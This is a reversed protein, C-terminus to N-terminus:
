FFDGIIECSNSEQIHNDLRQVSATKLWSFYIPKHLLHLGIIPIQGPDHRTMSYGNYNKYMALLVIWRNVEKLHRSTAIFFNVNCYILYNKNETSQVINHRQNDLTNGWLEKISPWINIFTIFWKIIYHKLLCLRLLRRITGNGIQFTFGSVSTSASKGLSATRVYLVTSYERVFFM